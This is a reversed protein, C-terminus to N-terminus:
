LGAQKDVPWLTLLSFPVSASCLCAQHTCPAWGGRPGAELSCPPPFFGPSRPVQGMPRAGGSAAMVALQGSVPIHCFHPCPSRPPSTCPPIPHPEQRAAGWSLRLSPPSPCSGRCSVPPGPHREESNPVPCTERSSPPHRHRLVHGENRLLM